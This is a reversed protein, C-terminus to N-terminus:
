TLLTWNQYHYTIWTKQLHGQNMYKTKVSVDLQPIEDFIRLGISSPHPGGIVTLLGPDAEKAVNIVKRAFKTQFTNETVGLIDPSFSEIIAKLDSISVNEATMDVIKVDHGQDYCMTGILVLAGSPYKKKMGEHFDNQPPDVLLIKKSKDM